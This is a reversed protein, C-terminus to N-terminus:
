GKYFLVWEGVRTNGSLSEKDYWHEGCWRNIRARMAESCINRGYRSDLSMWKCLSIKLLTNLIVLCFQRVWSPIHPEIKVNISFFVHFFFM